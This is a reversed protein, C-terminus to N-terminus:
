ISSCNAPIKHESKAKKLEAKQNYRKIKVQMVM